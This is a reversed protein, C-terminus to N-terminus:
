RLAPMGTCSSCACTSRPTSALGVPGEQTLNRYIGDKEHVVTENRTLAMVPGCAELAQLIALWQGGVLPTAKCRGTMTGTHAQVVAGESLGLAEAADKARLGAARQTAFGERVAAANTPSSTNLHEMTANNM